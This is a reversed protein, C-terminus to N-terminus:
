KWSQLAERLNEPRVLPQSVSNIMVDGCYLCQSGVLSDIKAQVLFVHVCM